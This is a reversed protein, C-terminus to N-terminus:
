PAVETEMEKIIGTGTSTVKLPPSTPKGNVYVLYYPDTEVFSGNYVNEGIRGLHLTVTGNIDTHFAFGNGPLEQRRSDGDTILTHVLTVSAGVLPEGDQTVRIIITDTKVYQPTLEVFGNELYAVVYSITGAEQVRREARETRSVLIMSYGPDVVKWTGNIKVEVFAHDEGPLVVKRADFGLKKLTEMEWMSMEGCAGGGSLLFKFFDDYSRGVGVTVAVNGTIALGTNAIFTIQKERDPISLAQNIVCNYGVSAGVFPLFLSVVFVVALVFGPLKRTKFLSSSKWLYAVFILSFPVAATLYNPLVASLACFFVGFFAIMIIEFAWRKVNSDSKRSLASTVLWTSIAVPAVYYALVYLVINATAMWPAWLFNFKLIISVFLFVLVVVCVAMLKLPNLSKVQDDKTKEIKSWIGRQRNFSAIIVFFPPLFLTWNWYM